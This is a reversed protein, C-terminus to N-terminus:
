IQTYWIANREAAFRCKKVPTKKWKIVPASMPYLTFVLFGIVFPFIFVYGVVNDKEMFKSFKKRGIKTDQVSNPSVM